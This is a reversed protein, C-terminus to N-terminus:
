TALLMSQPASDKGDIVAWLYSLRLRGAAYHPAYRQSYLEHYEKIRLDHIASGSKVPGRAKPQAGGM